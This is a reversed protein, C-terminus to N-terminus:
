AVMELWRPRNDNAADTVMAHRSYLPPAGDNSKPPLMPDNDNAAFTNNLIAMVVNTYVEAMDDYGLATSHVSDSMYGLALANAYSLWKLRIDVLPVDYEAAVQYMANVYQNQNAANGTSSNDFPPVVLIPDGGAAKVRLVMTVMDAKAVAVSISTRWSNIIGANYFMASPQVIDVMNLRGVVDANSNLGTSTAGCIGWNLISLEPGLTSNYAHIGIPTISGLAWSLEITKSGVAGLPAPTRRLQTVNTSNIPTTAGGNVAWTFNRGTAGDRWWIDASDVNDQPTFSLTGAASAAFANGGATIVSGLAMTPTSLVRGDGTKFNDITQGLGWSGGDSMFNNAGANVGRARLKAAMKMPWSNVAQSAGAGTSQGRVTSDGDAVLNVNGSQALWDARLNTTNSSKLNYTYAAGSYGKSFVVRRADATPIFSLAAIAAATVIAVAKRFWKM